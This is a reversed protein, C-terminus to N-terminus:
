VCTCLGCAIESWCTCPCVYRKLFVCVFKSLFMCLVKLFDCSCITVCVRMYVCIYACSATGSVALCTDNDVGPHCVDGVAFIIVFLVFMQWIAHGVVAYLHTHTFPTYMCVIVFIQTIPTGLWQTCIHAYAHLHHTCALLLPISLCKGSPCHTHTYIYIFIYDVHYKRARLMRQSLLPQDRPYPARQLLDPRPDETALAVSAFSDMIM